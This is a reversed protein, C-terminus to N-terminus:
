RGLVEEVIRDVHSSEDMRRALWADFDAKRVRLLKNGIRFYPIPDTPDHLLDHALRESINLHRAIDSRTLTSPTFNAPQIKKRM